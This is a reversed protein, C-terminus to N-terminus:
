ASMNQMMVAISISKEILEFALNNKGSDMYIEALRRYILINEVELNRETNIQIVIEYYMIQQTINKEKGIEDAVRLCLTIAKDYQKSERYHHILYKNFQYNDPSTNKRIVEAAKSNLEIYKSGEIQNKLVVKIMQNKLEYVYGNDGIKELIVDKNKLNKLMKAILDKDINILEMLYDAEISFDFLSMMRLIEKENEDLADLEHQISQTDIEGSVSTVGEESNMFWEFDESIYLMGSAVRSKIMEIIKMPNGNTENMVLGILNNPNENMGLISKLLNNTELYDLGFLEVYDIKRSLLDFDFTEKAFNKSMSFVYTIPYIQNANLYYNLMKIERKELYEVNDILVVIPKYKIKDIIYNMLRNNVKLYESELEDEFKNKFRNISEDINIGLKDFDYRNGADNLKLGYILEQVLFLPNDNFEKLSIKLATIKKLRFYTYLEDIFRTKGMGQDAFIAFGNYKNEYNYRAVIKSKLTSLNLNKDNFEPTYNVYDNSNFKRSSNSAVNMELLKSFVREFDEARDSVITSTMNKLLLILDNAGFKSIETRFNIRKYDIQYFLYFIM